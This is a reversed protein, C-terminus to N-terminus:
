ASAELIAAFREYARVQNFVTDDLGHLKHRTDIEVLRRMAALPILEVEHPLLRPEIAGLDVGEWLCIDVAMVAEGFGVPSWKPTFDIIAPSEGPSVLFNGALDGHIIQWRDLAATHLRHLREYCPAIRPDLNWSEDGFAVRDAVAWPDTALDFHPPRAVGQLGAHLARAALFRDQVHTAHPMSGAVFRQATWGDHVWAGAVTRIPEPVRFGVQPIRVLVDSEWEAGVPDFAPKLVVDGSRWAAGQGGHLPTPDTLCGFADLVSARPRHPMRLSVPPSRRPRPLRPRRTPGM